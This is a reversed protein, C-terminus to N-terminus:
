TRNIELINYLSIPLQSPLLFLCVIWTFASPLWKAHSGIGYDPGTIYINTLGSIVTTKYINTCGINPQTVIIVLMDIGNNLMSFMTDIPSQNVNLDLKLHKQNKKVDCLLTTAIHSVSYWNNKMLM